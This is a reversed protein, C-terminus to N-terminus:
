FRLKASVQMVRPLGTTSNITGFQVNGFATNPMWFRPTNTINFAEFRLQLSTQERIRTNKVLAADLNSFSPGRVDPLTRGVNGFTYPDPLLFQTTDFWKAIQEQRSRDRDLEATRGTSNPRNGGGTVPASIQLPYGNRYSAIGSLQWGEIL